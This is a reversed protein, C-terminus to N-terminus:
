GLRVPMKRDKDWPEKKTGANMESVTALFLVVKM